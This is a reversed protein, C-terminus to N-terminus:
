GHTRRGALWTGLVPIGALAHAPRAAPDAGLAVLDAAAGVRITGSEGDRFAQHASGATYADVARRLTLRQEPIWGGPPRRAADERTVAVALGALPAHDSVPWDSGFALRAGARVLSALPYQVGGRGHGIRPLTLETQTLDLQAWLPQANAIVGLEAFRSM